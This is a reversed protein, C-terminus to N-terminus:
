NIKSITTCAAITPLSVSPHNKYTYTLHYRPPHLLTTHRTHPATLPAWWKSTPTQPVSTAIGIKNDTTYTTENKSINPPLKPSKNTPAITINNTTKDITNCKNKINTKNNATKIVQITMSSPENNNSAAIAVDYLVEPCQRPLEM